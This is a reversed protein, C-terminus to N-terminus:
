TAFKRKKAAEIKAEKVRVNTCPSTVDFSIFVEDHDLSISRLSDVTQKSLWNIKQGLFLQRDTIKEAVKYVPSGPM